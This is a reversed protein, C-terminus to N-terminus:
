VMFQADLANNREGTFANWPGGGQRSELAYATKLGSFPEIACEAEITAGVAGTTNGAEYNMQGWVGSPATTSDIGIGAYLQASGGSTSAEARYVADYEVVIQQEPLGSLIQLCLGANGAQGWSPYSAVPSHWTLAEIRSKLTVLRQNYANWIGNKRAVGFGVHSSVCGGAADTHLSGIYPAEHASLNITNGNGGSPIVIPPM